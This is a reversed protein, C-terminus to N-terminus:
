AVNALKSRKSIPGALITGSDSESQVAYRDVLFRELPASLSPPPASMAVDVDLAAVDVHDSDHDQAHANDNGSDHKHEILEVDAVDLKITNDTTHGLNSTSREGSTSPTASSAAPDIQVDVSALTIPGNQSDSIRTAIANAVFRTVESRRAILGDSILELEEGFERMSPFRDLPSRALARQIFADIETSVMGNIGRLSPVEAAMALRITDLGSTGEFLRRGALSEWLVCGLAFMDCSTNTVRMRIYEPSMYGFKGRRMTPGTQGKDHARKAIGFDAIRAVGDLGLLINQPSVDRHVLGLANGELDTANHIADLGACADLIIRLAVGIPLQRGGGILQALSGGDIYDMVLLLEDGIEEVDNISVVNPHRVLSGLRAENLIAERLQATGDDNSTRAFARKIAVRRAFGGAGRQFGLYIAGMGGSAICRTIRYRSSCPLNQEEMTNKTLTM